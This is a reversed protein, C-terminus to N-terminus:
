RVQGIYYGFRENANVYYYLIPSNAYGQVRGIDYLWRTINVSM